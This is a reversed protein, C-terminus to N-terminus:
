AATSRTGPLGAYLAAPGAPFRPAQDATPSGLVAAWVIDLEPCRLQHERARGDM